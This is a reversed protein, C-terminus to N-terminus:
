FLFMGLCMMIVVSLVRFSLLIRFAAFPFLCTVYSPLGMLIVSKEVWIRFALLDYFFMIWVMFSLLQWGLSILVAFSDKRISLSILVKWLL